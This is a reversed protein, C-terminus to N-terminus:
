ATCPGPEYFIMNPHYQHYERVTWSSQAVIRPGNGAYTTETVRYDNYSRFGKVIVTVYGFPSSACPETYVYEFYQELGSGVVERETCTTTGQNFTCVGPRAPQQARATGATAVVAMLALLAVTPALVSRSMHTSFVAFLM